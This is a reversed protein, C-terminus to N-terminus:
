PRISEAGHEDGELADVPRALRGLGRQEGLRETGVREEDALRAAGLHGLGDAREELIRRELHIVHGLKEEEGRRAGVQRPPHDLRGALRAPVDDAVAVDVGGGRVLADRAADPQLHDLVQHLEHDARAHRLPGHEKAHIRVRRM